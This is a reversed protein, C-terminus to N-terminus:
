SLPGGTNIGVFQGTWGVGEFDVKHRHSLSLPLYVLPVCVSVKVITQDEGPGAM